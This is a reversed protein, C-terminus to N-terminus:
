PAGLLDIQGSGPFPTINLTATAGAMSISPADIGASVVDKLTTIWRSVIALAVLADAALV